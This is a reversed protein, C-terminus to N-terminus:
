SLQDLLDLKQIWRKVVNEDDPAPLLTSSLSEMEEEIYRKPTEMIPLTNISKIDEKLKRDTTEILELYKKWSVEGFERLSSCYTTRLEMPNQETLARQIKTRITSLGSRSFEPQVRKDRVGVGSAGSYGIFVHLLPTTEICIGYASVFRILDTKNDPHKEMRENETRKRMEPEISPLVHPLMDEISSFGPCAGTVVVIPGLPIRFERESHFTISRYPPKGPLMLYLYRVPLFIATLRIKGNIDTQRGCYVEFTPFVLFTKKRLFRKEKRLSLSMSPQMYPEVIADLATDEVWQWEGRGTPEWNSTLGSHCEIVHGGIHMFWLYLFWNPNELPTRDFEHMTRESGFVTLVNPTSLEQPTHVNCTEEGKVLQTVRLKNICMQLTTCATRVLSIQCRESM